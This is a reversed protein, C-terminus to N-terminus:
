EDKIISEKMMKKIERNFAKSVKKYVINNKFSSFSQNYYPIYSSETNNDIVEYEFTNDKLSIAFDCEIVVKDKYKYIPLNYRYINGYKRFGYSILKEHNCNKHLNM